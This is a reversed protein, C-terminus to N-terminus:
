TRPRPPTDQQADPGARPDMLDVWDAGAALPCVLGGPRLVVITWSRGDPRVFLQILKDDRVGAAVPREAYESRLWALFAKREYCPIGTEASASFSVAVWPVLGLAATALLRHM